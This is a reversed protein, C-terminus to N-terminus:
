LDDDWFKHPLEARPINWQKAFEALDREMKRHRAVLQRTNLITTRMAPSHEICSARYESYSADYLVTRWQHTVEVWPGGLVETAIDIPWLSAPNERFPLGVAQYVRGILESCFAVGQRDSSGRPSFDYSQGLYYQALQGFLLAHDPWQAEFRQVLGRHRFVQWKGDGPEDLEFITAITVGAPPDAHILLGGGLSLAVHSFTPAGLDGRALRQAVESLRGKKDISRFLVVDGDLLRPITPNAKLSNMM